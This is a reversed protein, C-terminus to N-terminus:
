RAFRTYNITLRPRKFAESEISHFGFVDINLGEAGSNLAIWGNRQEGWLWSAVAPTVVIETSDEDVDLDETKNVINLWTAGRLGGPMEDSLKYPLISQSPAWPEDLPKNFLTLLARNIVVFYNVTDISSIDFHLFSRRVVGSGIVLDSLASTTDYDLLFLDHSAYLETTDPRLTDGEEDRITMYIYMRPKVIGTSDNEIASRSRFGILKNVANEAKLLFSLGADSRTSDVWNTDIASSDYWSLWDRVWATDPIIRLTGNDADLPQIAFEVPDGPPISDRTIQDTEGWDMDFHEVTVDPFAGDGIGGSYHFEIKASDVHWEEPTAPQEFRILSWSSVGYAEGVYLHQSASTKVPPFIMSTDINAHIIATQSEGETM